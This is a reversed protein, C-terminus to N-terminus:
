KAQLGTVPPRVRGFLRDMICLTCSIPLYALLQMALLLRRGQLRYISSFGRRLLIIARLLHFKILDALSLAFQYKRAITLQERVDIHKGMNSNSMSDEHERYKMLSKRVYLIDWGASLFRLLVDWDLHHRFEPLYGGVERLAKVRIAATSHHWWCGQFLTGRVAGVSAHITEISTGSQNEGPSLRVGPIWSDYSSCVSAVRSNATAVLGLITRLWDPYAVNDSHMLMFWEVDGPLSFAADSVDQAEGRGPRTVRFRIPVSSHWTNKVIELTRDSSNGDAILVCNLLNLEKGQSQISEM